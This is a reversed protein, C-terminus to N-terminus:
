RVMARLSDSILSFLWINQNLANMALTHKVEGKTPIRCNCTAITFTYINQSIGDCSVSDGIGDFWFCESISFYLKGM